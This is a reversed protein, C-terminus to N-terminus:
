VQYLKAGHLTFAVQTRTAVNSIVQFIVTANSAFLRPPAFNYPFQGTGAIAAIPAAINFLNKGVQSDNIQVDGAFAAVLVEAGAIGQRISATLYYAKFNADSAINIHMNVVAGAAAMAASWGTTYFFNEERYTPM